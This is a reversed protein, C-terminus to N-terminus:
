KHLFLLSRSPLFPPFSPPLPVFHVTSVTFDMVQSFFLMGIFYYTQIMWGWLAPPLHHTYVGFGPIPPPHAHSHCCSRCPPHTTPHHHTPPPPHHHPPPPTTTPHLVHLSYSQVYVTSDMVQFCLPDAIVPPPRWLDCKQRSLLETTVLTIKNSCFNQRGFVHKDCCINTMVFCKNCCFYKTM